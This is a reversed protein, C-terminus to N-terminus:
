PQVWKKTELTNLCKIGACNWPFDSTVSSSSFLFFFFWEVKVKIAEMLVVHIGLYDDSILLLFLSKESHWKPHEKSQNVPQSAPQSSPHISPYISPHIPELGSRHWFSPAKQCWGRLLFCNGSSAPKNGGKGSGAWHPSQHYYNYNDHYNRLEHPHASLWSDGPHPPHIRPLLSM